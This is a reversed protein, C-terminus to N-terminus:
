NEVKKIHDEINEALEEYNLNAGLVNIFKGNKDFFYMYTTHDLMYDDGEYVKRSYLKFIKLFKTLDEIAPSLGILDEHFVKTYKEILDPSDREPDLSVFLYKINKYGKANLIDIASSLKQLSIPCIDPCKTFGFYYVIYNGHLDVDHVKEGKTNNLEWAGGINAEGIVKIVPKSTGTPPAKVIFQLYYMSFVLLAAAGFFLGPVSKTEDKNKDKLERLIEDKEENGQDKRPEISFFRFQTSSQLLPKYSPYALKSFDLCRRFM